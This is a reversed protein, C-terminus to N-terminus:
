AGVCRLYTKIIGDLSGCNNYNTKECLSTIIGRRYMHMFLKATNRADDLADHIRGDYECGMTALANQLSTPNSSGIYNYFVLQLNCWRNVVIIMNSTPSIHKVICENILQMLDNESWAYVELNDNESCCWDAFAKVETEYSGCGHVNEDTIGTYRSVFGTINKSYEPQVFRKYASYISLSDDLKVAGIEIIEQKCVSGVTKYDTDIPNMEFDVFVHTM